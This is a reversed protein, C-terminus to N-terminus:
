WPFLKRTKQSSQRVTDTIEANKEAQTKGAIETNRLDHTAVTEGVIYAKQAEKPLTSRDGRRGGTSDYLDNPKCGFLEETMAVTSARHAKEDGGKNKIEKTFDNRVTAGDVREHRTLPQSNGLLDLQSEEPEEQNDKFWNLFGM